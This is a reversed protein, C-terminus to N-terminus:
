LGKIKNRIASIMKISVWEAYYAHGEFNYHLGDFSDFDYTDDDFVISAIDSEPGTIALQTASASITM